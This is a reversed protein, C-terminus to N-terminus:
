PKRFRSAIATGLSRVSKKDRGPLAHLDPDQSLESLEEVALGAAFDRYYPSKQRQICLVEDDIGAFGEKVLISKMSKPRLSKTIKVSTQLLELPRDTGHAAALVHAARMTDGEMMYGIATPILKDKHPTLADVTINHSDLLTSLPDLDGGAAQEVALMTRTRLPLANIIDGAEEASEADGFEGLTYLALAQEAEPFHCMELRQMWRRRRVMRRGKQFGQEDGNAGIAGYAYARDIVPDFMDVQHHAAAMLEDSGTISAGRALAEARKPASKIAGLVQGAAMEGEADHMAFYGESTDVLASDRRGDDSIDMSLISAHRLLYPAPLVEALDTSIEPVAIQNSPTHEERGTLMKRYKM